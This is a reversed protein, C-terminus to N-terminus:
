EKPMRGENEAVQAEIQPGKHEADDWYNDENGERAESVPYRVQM